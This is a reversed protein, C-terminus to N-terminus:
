TAGHRPRWTRRAACRRACRSCCTQPVRQKRNHSSSFPPPCPARESVLSRHRRRRRGPRGGARNSGRCLARAGSAEFLAGTRAGVEAALSADVTELFRALAEIRGHLSEPAADAAAAADHLLAPWQAEFDEAFFVPPVAGAARIYADGARPALLPLPRAPSGPPGGGGGGVARRRLAPSGGHQQQQSSSSSSSSSPAAAAAAALDARDAAFRVDRGGGVISLYPRLDAFGVAPYRAPDPPPPREPGLDADAGGGGGVGLAAWLSGHSPHRQAHLVAAAVLTQGVCAV